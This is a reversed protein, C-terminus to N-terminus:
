VNQPQWDRSNNMMANLIILLKHMCATLAVKKLKGKGILREYFAKIVPNFRIAVLTAMYLVCRIKARGGYIRRKGRFKGSDKNLPAVGALYSISKHSITGLEPLSSILSVAVVQGVGPVSTLLKMKQQWDPNVAIASKIQSEMEKLQQELWEVHEDISAQVSNTKGRRRNKEATIMDSIQRRRQVLDELQRSSEDSIQRVQPRIADAFHALVRADIADTKALQGTAKAFDRAQRPNIVAVALGAQTLKIAADIEMGGTAELVILEPQLKSLTQVLKLIGVEDNTVQFLKELPRIYVDLYKQCVDIGVWQKESM